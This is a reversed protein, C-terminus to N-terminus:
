ILSNLGFIAIKLNFVDPCRAFPAPHRSVWASVEADKGVLASLGVHIQESGRIEHTEHLPQLTVEVVDM